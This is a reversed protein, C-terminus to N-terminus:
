GNSSRSLGSRPPVRLLHAPGRPPAGGEQGTGVERAQNTAPDRRTKATTMSCKSAFAQTGTPRTAAANGAVLHKPTHSLTSAWRLRLGPAREHVWRTKNANVLRKSLETMELASKLGCAQFLQVKEETAVNTVLHRYSCLVKYTLVGSTIHSSTASMLNESPM